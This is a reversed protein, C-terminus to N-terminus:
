DKREELSNKILPERLAALLAKIKDETLEATDLATKPYGNERAFGPLAALIKALEPDSLGLQDPKWPAQIWHLFQRLPRSSQGQLESMLITGLCVLPGRPFNRNTILPVADAFIQASGSVARRAGAKEALEERKILLEFIKRIGGETLEAIEDNWDLLEQVLDM